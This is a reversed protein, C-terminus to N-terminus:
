RDIFFKDFVLIFIIFGKFSISLNEVIFGGM